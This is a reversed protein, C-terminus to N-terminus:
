LHRQIDCIDCQGPIQPDGGGQEEPLEEEGPQLGKGRLAALDLEDPM